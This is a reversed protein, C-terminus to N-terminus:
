QGQAKRMEAWHDHYANAQKFSDFFDGTVRCRLAKLIMGSMDDAHELEYERKFFQHLPSEALWLKWGNRMARGFTHHFMAMDPDSQEILRAEDPTLDAYLIAVAEQLTDPCHERFNTAM